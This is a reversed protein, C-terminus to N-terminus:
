RRGKLFAKLLVKFFKWPIVVYPEKQRNKSIVVAWYTGDYAQEIAQKVFEPISWKEQNKCEFSIPLIKRYEPVIRIDPGSQGSERSAVPGDKEFPVGLLKCIEKCVFNQLRRGKAKCSSPKM